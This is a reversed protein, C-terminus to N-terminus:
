SQSDAMADDLAGLLFDLDDESTEGSTICFRVTLEGEFEVASIWASGHDVVSKAIHRAGPSNQPPRMCLVAAPSDNLCTWGRDLLAEKLMAAMTAAREVHAAYGDWGATALATFLRLGIFRRSWQMSLVYPDLNAANSPMCDMTVQFAANLSEPRSTLFMGCGMTTALFKHADITVSDAGEIGSLFPRLKESCILAGGWAADVHHWIKNRRAIAGCQGLPDIMGAGTTGATSAIMVPVDGEHLDREIAASLHDADMRGSGDTAILRVASRGIGCQHAIKLWALHAAQSTYLRPQGMFARTGDQAFEPSAMTLACIAATANAESGGTTFHGSASPVFGLREAVAGILFAELAVPFPSTTATALQPNFVAAIREACQAPFTPAPNFLGFYRPHDVHVLGDVMNGIIWALVDKAPRPRAFDFGRLEADFDQASLRPSVRGARVCQAARALAETLWDEVSKRFEAPPFFESVLANQTVFAHDDHKLQAGAPPNQGFPLGAGEPM